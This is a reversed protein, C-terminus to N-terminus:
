FGKLLASKSGKREEVRESQWDSREKKGEGERKGLGHRDNAARDWDGANHAQHHCIFGPRRITSSLRTRDYLFGNAMVFPGRTMGILFLPGKIAPNMEIARNDIPKRLLREDMLLFTPVQLFPSRLHYGGQDGAIVWPEVSGKMCWM